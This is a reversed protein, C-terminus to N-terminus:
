EADAAKKAQAAAYAKEITALDGTCMQPYPTPKDLWAWGIPYGMGKLEKSLQDYSKPTACDEANKCPPTQATAVIAERLTKDVTLRALITISDVNLFVATGLGILFLILQTRRRYWGSARDMTSDFWTELSKRVADIDGQAEDIAGDLVRRIRDNGVQTAAFRLAPISLEMRQPAGPAAPASPATLVVDLLASVFTKSPIYSPLDRGKSAEELKGRYLSSILPHEYLLKLPGDFVGKGDPDQQNFMERIGKELDGARSKMLSEIGERISTAILSMMLFLLSMGIGVDVVDSCFM